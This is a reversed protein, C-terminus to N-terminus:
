GNWREPSFSWREPWHLLMLNRYGCQCLKRIPIIRLYPWSAFLMCCVISIILDPIALFMVAWEADISTLFFVFCKFFKYFSLVDGGVPGRHVQHLLYFIKRSDEWATGPCISLWRLPSTSSDTRKLGNLSRWSFLLRLSVSTALSCAPALVIM